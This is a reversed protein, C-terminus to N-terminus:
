KILTIKQKKVKKVDKNDVKLKEREEIFVKEFLKLAIAPPQIELLKARVADHVDDRRL